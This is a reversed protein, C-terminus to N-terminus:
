LDTAELKARMKDVEDTLESWESFAKELQNGVSQFAESTKRLEDPDSAVEPKSMHQTFTERAAEFETITAELKELGPIKRLAELLKHVSEDPGAVFLNIGETSLLITGRLDLRKCLRRLSDRLPKLDTLSAFLYSSINLVPGADPLATTTNM